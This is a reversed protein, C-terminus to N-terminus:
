DLAAKNAALICVSRALADTALAAHLQEAESLKRDEFLAHVDTVDILWMPVVSEEVMRQYVTSDHQGSLTLPLHGATTM